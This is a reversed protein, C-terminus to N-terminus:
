LLSLSEDAKRPCKLLWDGVAALTSANFLPKQCRCGASVKRKQPLAVSSFLRRGRQLEFARKISGTSASLHLYRPGLIDILMGIGNGWWELASQFATLSPELVM